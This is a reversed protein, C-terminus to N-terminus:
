GAVRAILDRYATVDLGAAAAVQEATNVDMTHARTWERVRDAPWGLSSALQETTIQNLWAVLGPLAAAADRSKVGALHQNVWEPSLRGPHFGRRGALWELADLPDGLVLDSRAEDAKPKANSRIPKDGKPGMANRVTRVDVDGLFAIEKPTFGTGSDSERVFNQVYEALALRAEAMGLLIVLPADSCQFTGTYDWGGQAERPMFSLFYSLWQTGEVKEDDVDIQEIPGLVTVLDFCRRTCAAFSTDSIKVKSLFERDRILDDLHQKPVNKIGLIASAAADGRKGMGAMYRCADAVLVLGVRLDEEIANWAPLQVM